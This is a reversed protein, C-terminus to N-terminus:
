SLFDRVAQVLVTVGVEMCGEDFINKSNHIGFRTRPDDNASGLAFQAGPGYKPFLEGFDESGMSPNAIHNIKDAGITEAAAREVLDIAEDAHIRVPCGAGGWKVEAACRLGKAVESSIREIAEKNAIRRDPDLNRLTGVMVVEDPVVNGAKGGHISGVTLVAPRSPHNERSVVTQLATLIYASAMVPDCFKEPHAGHGGLGKVTITFGDSSASAVGRITGVTGVKHGANVHLGLFMDPKLVNYFGKEVLQRAGRGKEEAPQFLFMVQGCLEERIESLVKACYILVTTHIDHGCSHCVNEVESAFPLGTEEQMPLADMDERLAITRGPKGGRLVAVLGTNMGIEAIELGYAEMRKRVLATTVFEQDSLEPHRHITRRTERMEEVYPKILEQSSKM